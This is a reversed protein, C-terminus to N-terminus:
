WFKIEGGEVTFIREEQGEKVNHLWLLANSPINNYLLQNQQAIKRGLSIWGTSDYYFLEYVGDKFVNNADNRVLYEVDTVQCAQGLDIGIWDNIIGYSLPDNDFVFRKDRTNTSSIIQGRVISDQSFFELESLCVIKGEPIKLRYYRYKSQTKLSLKKPNLYSLTRIFLLTDFQKFNFDNSAEIRGELINFDSETLRSSSPYKRTLTLALQTTTDPKLRICSGDTKLLIPYNISVANNKDYVIPLYVIGRGMENFCVKKNKIKSFAIAQWKKNNFICLYAYKNGNIKSQLIPINIDSVPLYYSTVNKQFPNRFLEPIYEKQSPEPIANRTYTHRYIRAAREPRYNSLNNYYYRYDILSLWAHGNNRYAHYPIFDYAVPICHFRCKIQHLLNTEFCEYSRTLIQKGFYIDRYPDINGLPERQNIIFKSASYIDQKLDDFYLLIDDNVRVLSDRFHTSLLELPENSIRYPLIYECFDSFPMDRLWPRHRRQEFIENIHDILFNSSITKIDYKRKLTSAVSLDYFPLMKLYYRYYYSSSVFISDITDYYDRLKESEFSYHGPMNEILFKAAKLKLSDEKSSYHYLVKELEKRNKGSLRLAKELPSISCGTFYAVSLLCFLITYINRTLM